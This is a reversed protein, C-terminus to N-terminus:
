ASKFAENVRHRLRDTHYLITRHGTKAFAGDLLGALRMKRIENPPLDVEAGAGEDGFVYKNSRKAVSEAEHSM